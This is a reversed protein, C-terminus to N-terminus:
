TTIPSLKEERFTAKVGRVRVRVDYFTCVHTSKKTVHNHHGKEKQGTSVSVSMNNDDDFLAEEGGASSHHSPSLPPPPTPPLPPSPSPPLCTLSLPPPLLASPESLPTTLLFFSSFRLLPLQPPLYFILTQVPRPSPLSPLSHPALM